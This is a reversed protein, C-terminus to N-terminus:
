KELLLRSIEIYHLPLSYLTPDKLFDDKRDNVLAKNLNDIMQFRFSLTGLSMWSPAKIRCKNDKRLIIALWLPVKAVEM